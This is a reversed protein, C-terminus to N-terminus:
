GDEGHGLAMYDESQMEMLRSVTREFEFSGDGAVYLAEPEAAATAFLKVRNEYLEDILTVFRAAENRDDPGLTPIGVIIVTHYNHAIALYDSAGRPEGCLRKFSFVGVGKLSKPVHLTRGGGLDLDASPVHDADEPAYDTLRFFAERVQATAADGLPTHWTELGALRDLRYDTAGNLEVVDMQNQILDIFPLFHERNLGNKYLDRPPRNSTTVVAVNEECILARFLRSMIMADASNNVVMEDFALVDLEGGLAKAVPPIPDGSETKRADRLRAHVDLMFAHFHARRKTPIDLTDHFLDMLMSKGRGVGGWMYVGRPRKPRSGFLRGMLGPAASHELEDQLRALQKAAAEQERDARLEGAEVLAHYRELLGSM